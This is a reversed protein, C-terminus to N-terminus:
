DILLGIGIGVGVLIVNVITNLWFGRTGERRVEGRLTQAVAEVEDRNLRVLREYREADARLRDVLHHREAVETEIAAMAEAAGQLSRSLDAIREDITDTRTDKREFSIGVVQEAVAVLLEGTFRAVERVVAAFTRFMEALM